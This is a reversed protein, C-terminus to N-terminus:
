FVRGLLYVGRLGSLWRFRGTARDLFLFDQFGPYYSSPSSRLAALYKIPPSSTQRLDASWGKEVIIRGGGQKWSINIRCRGVRLDVPSSCKAEYRKVRTEFLLSVEARNRANSVIWEGASCNGNCSSPYYSDHCIRDIRALNSFLFSIRESRFDRRFYDISRAKTMNCEM